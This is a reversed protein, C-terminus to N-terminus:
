AFRRRFLVVGVGFFLAGLGTMVAVPVLVEGASSGQLTLEWGYLAWGQPMALRVTDFVEPLDSVGTAFLGGLMGTVTLVGGMVPGAQRTNQVFSMLLVGFGAAVVILGLTVLIVTLSRGWSIGFLLGSAVLLIVVQVVLNLVVATFKGALVTARPTPTTFLRQLTGEEDERVISEATNAGMFFAFFITMGVMIGGFMGPDGSAPEEEVALSRTQLIPSAGSEHNHSLSEFWVAYAQAAAAAEQAVASEAADGHAQFQQSVVTATIKAGAFGDIFQRVLDEVIGPGISLTPDQYQIVAAERDPTLAAATFNPPIILAVDARQAEVAARADAESRAITVELLASLEERQLFEVLMQGVALDGGMAGPRDLNAVQVRVTQLDFDGGGALSGFAFYLLGTILLPAAFMMILAFPTTLYRRLDKLAIDLTKM